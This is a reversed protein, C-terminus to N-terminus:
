RAEASVPALGLIAEIEAVLAPLGQGTRGSIMRPPQALGFAKVAASPAKSRESQGLSDAKNLLVTCPVGAELIRGLCVVDVEAGIVRADVLYFLHTPIDDQSLYQGVLSAFGSQSGKGGKAYGFGPLDAFYGREGIMYFNIERTKGPVRSTRLLGQRGLLANQLSSKGVNSRGAFAVQPLGDSPFQKPSAAGLVFRAQAQIRPRDITTM